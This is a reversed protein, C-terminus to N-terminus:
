AQSGDAQFVHRIKRWPEVLAGSFISCVLIKPVKTKGGPKKGPENWGVCIIRQNSTGLHLVLRDDRKAEPRNFAITSMYKKPIGAHGAKVMGVYFNGIGRVMEITNM